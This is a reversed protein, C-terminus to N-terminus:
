EITISWWDTDFWGYFDDGDELTEYNDITRELIDFSLDYRANLDINSSLPNFVVAGMQKRLRYTQFNSSNYRSIVNTFYSAVASTTSSRMSTVSGENVYEMFYIFLQDISPKETSSYGSAYVVEDDDTTSTDNKYVIIDQNAWTESTDSSQFYQASEQEVMDYVYLMHWGYVTQTLEEAPNATVDVGVKGTVSDNYKWYGDDEINLMISAYDMDTLTTYLDKVENTFEEVYSSGSENDITSLDEATVTFEFNKKFDDWTMGKYKDNQLVYDYGTNNFVKALYQMATVRDATIVEVERVLADALTLLDTTFQEKDAASLKELLEEPDEYNGDLDTDISILFHAVDLSYYNDYIINTYKSFNAFLGNDKFAVKNTTEGDEVIYDGNFHGYYTNYASTLTSSILKNYIIDHENDYGYQLVLYNSLGMKKSYNTENRKFSKITDKIGDAYGDIADDDIKDMFVDFSALYKTALLNISESVGYISELKAFSDEVTYSGTIETNAYELADSPYTYEFSFVLSNDFSKTFTYYDEYSNAYQNEYVPDYIKLNFNESKLREDVLNGAYTESAWGDILSDVLRDKLTAKQSDTLKDYEEGEYVNLRLVMYYCNDGSINFPSTLFSTGEEEGYLDVLNDEIFDTVSTGLDAYTNEDENIVFSTYENTYIDGVSIKRDKYYSNFLDVYYNLAEEKTSDATLTRGMASIYKNAQAKSGFKIVIAHNAYSANEDQNPYKVGLLDAYSTYNKNTNYTSELKDEDIYYTNDVEKGDVDIITEKNIITKLYEKAYNVIAVTYRYEEILRSDWDCVFEDDSVTPIFKALEVNSYDIGSTSLKSDIFKQVSTEKDDQELDEYDEVTTVGYIASIIMEDIKEKDEPNSYDVAAMEKQFLQMKIESLVNSYGKNRFLNYIENYSVTQGSESLSAYTKSLDLSGTPTKTNRSADCSTLAVVTLSAVVASLIRKLYKKM